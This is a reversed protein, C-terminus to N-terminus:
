SAKRDRLCTRKVRWLAVAVAADVVFTFGFVLLLVHFYCRSHFRGQRVASVSRFAQIKLCRIKMKRPADMLPRPIRM